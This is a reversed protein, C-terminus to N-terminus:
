PISLRDLVSRLHEAHASSPNISLVRRSLNAAAAVDGIEVLADIRLVTAEDSLASHPYLRAFADLERL